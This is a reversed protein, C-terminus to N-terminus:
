VGARDETRRRCVFHGDDADPDGAADQASLRVSGERRRKHDFRMQAQMAAGEAVAEDCHTALELKAGFVGRLAERVSPAAASGELSGESGVMRGRASDGRNRGTAGVVRGAEDESGLGIQIFRGDSVCADTVTHTLMDFRAQTVSLSYDRGDFLSEITIQM